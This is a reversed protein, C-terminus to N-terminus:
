RVGVQFVALEVDEPLSDEREIRLSHAVVPPDLTWRARYRQAFYSGDSTLWSIWARPARSASEHGPRRAAWEGTEAGLTLLLVREIGEDGEIVIRGVPSKHALRTTNSAYTDLTVQRIKRNMLYVQSNNAADLTFSDTELLELPPNTLLFVAALVLMVGATLGAPRVPSSRRAVFAVLWFSVLVIAASKVDPNLGFGALASEFPSARLWPYAATLGAFLSLLGVWAAQIGLRQGRDPLASAVVVLPAALAVGPPLQVSAAAVLVVGTAVRIRRNAPVSVALPLAMLGLALTQISGDLDTEGGTFILVGALAATAGVAAVKRNALLLSGAAAVSVVAVLALPDRSATSILILACATWAATERLRPVATTARSARIARLARLAALVVLTLAVEVGFGRDITVIALFALWLQQGERQALRLAAAAAFIPIVLAELLFEPGFRPALYLEPRLLAQAALAWAVPEGTLKDLGQRVREYTVLALGIVLLASISAARIDGPPLAWLGLEALLAIVATRSLGTRELASMGLLVVTGALAVFRVEVADAADALFAARSAAAALFALPLAIRLLLDGLTSREAARTSSM